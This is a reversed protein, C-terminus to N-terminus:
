ARGGAVLRDLVDAVERAKSEIRYRERVASPVTRGGGCAWAQYAEYLAGAIAAEDDPAVVAGIGERRVLDAADGGRITALVPRSAGVYEFLKGPLHLGDDLDTGGVLLLLDADRELRVAEAHPVRGGLHVQRELGLTRVHERNWCGTAEDFGFSGYFALRIRSRLDPHADFLRRLARLAFLPTRKRFFNGCYVVRFVDRGGPVPDAGRPPGGRPPGPFDAPDFANTVTRFRGRLAPYRAEFDCRATDTTVLNLDADRVLLAELRAEIARRWRARLNRDIYGCSIWPDRYDAVWPLRRHRKLMWGALHASHPMGTTVVAAIGLRDILTRGRLYARAAWGVQEDPVLFPALAARIRSRVEHGVRRAIRERLSRVPRAGVPCGRPLRYATGWEWSPVRVVRLDEPLTRALAPDVDLYFGPSTSTTLVVPDWGCSRLHRCLRTWRFAGASASPPFYYAVLLFRRTTLIRERRADRM